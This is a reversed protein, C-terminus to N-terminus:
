ALRRRTPGIRAQRKDADRKTAVNRASAAVSSASM